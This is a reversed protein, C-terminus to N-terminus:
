LGVRRILARRFRPFQGHLSAFGRTSSEAMGAWHSRDTVPGISGISRRIRLRRPGAYVLAVATLTHRVPPRSLARCTTSSHTAGDEHHGSLGTSTASPQWPRGALQSVSKAPRATNQSRGSMNANNRIRAALGCTNGISIVSEDEVTAGFSSRPRRRLPGSYYDVFGVDTNTAVSLPDLDQPGAPDRCPAKTQLTGHRDLVCQALRAGDGYEPQPRLAGSSSSIPMRSLGLRLVAERLRASAHPDALDPTWRSPEPRRRKGRRGEFNAASPSWYSATDSRRTVTPSDRMRLRM